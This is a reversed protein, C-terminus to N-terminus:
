KVLRLRVVHERAEGAAASGAVRASCARARELVDLLRAMSSELMRRHRELKRLDGDDLLVVEAALKERLQPVEGEERGLKERLAEAAARAARGLSGYAEQAVDAPTDEAGLAGHAHALRLGHIPALGPVQDLFGLTVDVAGLFGARQAHGEPLVPQGEVSAALGDLAALATRTRQVSVFLDSRELAEEIAALTRGTELRSLRELRFASDAVQAVLEAEARTTPALTEAWSALLAEYAAPDEGPLLVSQSSLGHRLRNLSSAQKGAATRPGTSKLANRVAAAAQAATRATHSM